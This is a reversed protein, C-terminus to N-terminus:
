CQSTITLVSNEFKWISLSFIVRTENRHEEGASSQSMTVLCEHAVSMLSLRLRILADLDLVLDLYFAVCHNRQFNSLGKTWLAVM